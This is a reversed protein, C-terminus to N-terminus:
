KKKFIRACEVYLMAVVTVALLIYVVYCGMGVLRSGSQTINNRELMVDSVDTGSSLLFAVVCVVVLCGLGILLGRSGGKVVSLVRYGIMAVAALGIFVFLIYYAIDFMASFKDPDMAFIIAFISGLVAIGMSLWTILKKTKEKM